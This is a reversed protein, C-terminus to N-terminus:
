DPRSNKLWEQCERQTKFSHSLRHGQLTAQVSWSGNQRKYISGESNGRKKAM